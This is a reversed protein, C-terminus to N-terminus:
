GLLTLTRRFNTNVMRMCEKIDKGCIYTDMLLIYNSQMNNLAVYVADHKM